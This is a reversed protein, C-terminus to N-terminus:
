LLDITAVVILEIRHKAILLEVVVTIVVHYGPQSPASMGVSALVPAFM